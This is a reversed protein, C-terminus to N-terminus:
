LRVLHEARIGRTAGRFDVVLPALAVIREVDVGPHATVIAACDCEALADDLPMSRSASSQCSPCSSTTTSSGRAASPCCGRSRSRPRSACTASAARTPSASSRSRRARSRSRTDNLARGIKEVCFLPMKQNVTGALEIFETPVDFQRARWALYFPDVPLCHGGM